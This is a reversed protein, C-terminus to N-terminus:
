LFSVSLSFLFSYLFIASLHRLITKLLVVARTVDNKIVEGKVFIQGKGNGSAVGLDAERAEGPGNVVCGMVAVRMPVKFGQLAATVQEILDNLFNNFKEENLNESIGKISSFENIDKIIQGFNNEELHKLLNFEKFTEIKTRETKTPKSTTELTEEVKCVGRM